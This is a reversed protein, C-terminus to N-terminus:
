LLVVMDVATTGSAYVQAARVPLVTGAALNRFLVPETDDIARLRVHGGGGIYLAKGIQSLPQGDSPTIALSRRAPAFVSDSSYKFPDM